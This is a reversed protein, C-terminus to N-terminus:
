RWTGPSAQHIAAGLEPASIFLHINDQAVEIHDLMPGPTGLLALKLPVRQEPIKGANRCVDEARFEGRASQEAAVDHRCRKWGLECGSCRRHPAEAPRKTEVVCAHVSPTAVNGPGGPLRSRCDHLLGMRNQAFAALPNAILFSQNFSCAEGM